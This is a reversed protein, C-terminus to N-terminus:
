STLPNSPNSILINLKRILGALMSKIYNLKKFVDPNEVLFGIRTAIMFQTELEACSGLSYYLFKRYEPSSHRGAGEAINSPISIACRRMQSTLGFKEEQPFDKTVIYIYTVLDMSVQWVILDKHSSIKMVKFKPSLLYEFNSIVSKNKIIFFIFKSWRRVEEGRLGL